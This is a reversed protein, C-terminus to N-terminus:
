RLAFDKWVHPYNMGEGDMLGHVYCEGKFHYADGVERLVFPVQGGHLLCIQDGSTVDFRVLGLFGKESIFLQRSHVALGMTSVLDFPEETDDLARPLPWEASIGRVWRGEIQTLDAAITHLFADHLLGPPMNTTEYQAMVWEHWSQMATLILSSTIEPALIFVRDFTCGRVNLTNTSEILRVFPEFSTTAKYLRKSQSDAPLEYKAFTTTETMITWDPTWSPLPTSPIVDRDIPRSSWSEVTQIYKQCFGLINLDNQSKIVAYAFRMYAVNVPITYDPNITASQRGTTLAAFAFIKDRPDSAQSTRFYTLLNLVDPHHGPLGREM